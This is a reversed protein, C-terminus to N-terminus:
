QPSLSLSSFFGCYQLYILQILLFMLLVLSSDFHCVLWSPFLWQKRSPLHTILCSQSQFLHTSLIAVIFVFEQMQDLLSAKAQNHRLVRLFPLLQPHFFSPLIYLPQNVLFSQSSVAPVVLYSSTSVELRAIFGMVGHCQITLVFFMSDFGM